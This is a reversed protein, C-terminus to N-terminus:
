ASKKYTDLDARAPKPEGLLYGQALKLGLAQVQDLTAEDELRTAILTIQHGEFWTCFEARDEVPCPGRLLVNADIKVFQVNIGALWAPDLLTLDTVHDVSFAFGLRSLTALQERSEPRLQILDRAAAELVVRNGLGRHACVFSVLESLFEQDELVRGSVNVFLKVGPRRLGLKRVLNICRFLLLSDLASVLGSREAEGIYDTPSIVNGRLDRLRSYSEYHAVRRDPLFVIPQLYLDVRSEQLAGQLLSAMNLRPPVVEASTPEAPQLGAALREVMARLLDIEATLEITNNGGQHQLRATLRAVERELIGVRENLHPGMGAAYHLREEIDSGYRDLLVVLYALAALAALAFGALPPVRADSTLLWAVGSGLLFGISVVAIGAAGWKLGRARMRVGM